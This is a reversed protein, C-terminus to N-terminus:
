TSTADSSVPKTRDSHRPGQSKRFRNLMGSGIALTVGGVLALALSTPEPVITIAISPDSEYAGSLVEFTKTSSDWTVELYGFYTDTGGNQQFVFGMYSGAGWDPSTYADQIFFFSKELDAYFQFSTKDITEGATFRRPSVAALPDTIAFL